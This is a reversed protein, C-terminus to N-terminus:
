PQRQDPLVECNMGENILINFNRISSSNVFSERLRSNVSALSEVEQIAGPTSMLISNKHDVNPRHPSEIDLDPRTGFQTSVKSGQKLSNYKVPNDLNPQSEIEIEAPMDVHCQSKNLDESGLYDMEVPIEYIKKQSAEVKLFTLESVLREIEQKLLSIEEEYKM